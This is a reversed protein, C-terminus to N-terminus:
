LELLFYLLHGLLLGQVDSVHLSAGFYYGAGFASQDELKGSAVEFGDVGLKEHDGFDFILHFLFKITLRKLNYTGM